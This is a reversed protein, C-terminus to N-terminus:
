SLLPVFFKRIKWFNKIYARRPHCNIVGGPYDRRGAQVGYRNDFFKLISEDQHVKIDINTM